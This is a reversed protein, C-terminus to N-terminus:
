EKIFREVIRGGGPDFLEITYAGAALRQVDLVEHPGNMRQELMVRGDTALVRVHGNTFNPDDMHIILMGDTPNPMLLLRAGSGQELVGTGTTAVLLSPETIVPPNFDFYINAINEIEDGPLLPLRPQIRFGVFGHSLPENINSDPLLIGLFKFKLVGAGKLEWTFPHSAAGMELTAPDLNSPLTDTIIVHFATDTGTNQFRITYDIWEDQGVLWQSGSGMSTTALKDNPDYAGTITRVLMSTNNNPNADPQVSALTATTIVDTGLLGVDPPVQFRVTFNRQQFAMLQPQSWTITNGSVSTPVPTASLYGLVPDFELTVTIAGSVSPTLNRVSIGVQYEFGPRAAGSSQAIRGDFPVLSVMPHNVTTGAPAGSITFPLPDGSCHEEVVASQAEVTYSGNPLVLGYNGGTGTSAYYPGPQVELVVGPVGAENTQPTCNLNTDVFVRGNLEACTPGLDPITVAISTYCDYALGSNLPSSFTGAPSVYLEHTGPSLGRVVFWTTAPWVTLPGDIPDEIPEADPFASGPGNRWVRYGFPFTPSGPAPEDQYQSYVGNSVMVTASGTSANACSGELDIVQLDPMVTAPQPLVYPAQLVCQDGGYSFTISVTGTPTTTRLWRLSVLDSPQIDDYWANTAQVEVAEFTQLDGPDYSSFLLQPRVLLYPDMGGELYPFVRIVESWESLLLADNIGNLQKTDSVEDSDADTVILMYQGGDLDDLEAGCDLCYPVYNMGQQVYWDFTYPETGGSVDAILRGTPQDCMPWQGVSLSVSIANAAVPGFAIALLAVVLKM